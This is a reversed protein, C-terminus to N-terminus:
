RPFQLTATLSDGRGLNRAGWTWTKGDATHDRPASGGPGAVITQDLDVPRPLFYTLSAANVRADKTLV